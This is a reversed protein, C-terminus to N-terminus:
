AWATTAGWRADLGAVREDRRAADADAEAARVAAGRQGLLPLPQSVSAPLRATKQATLVTLTPTALTGAVQVDARAAEVHARAVALEAANRDALRSV